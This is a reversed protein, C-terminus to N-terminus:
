KQIGKIEKHYADAYTFALNHFIKRQELLRTDTRMPHVRNSLLCVAADREPDIWISTGTFGTHGYSRPASVHGLPTDGRVGLLFGIGRGVPAFPTFDTSFEGISDPSLFQGRDGNGGHLLMRLFRHIDGATSFVGANGAVGGLFRANEDHVTGCIITGTDSNRETSAIPRVAFRVSDLPNYTTDSMGLPGFVLEQAAKDLPAGFVIELIKGLVIFGFCSYTYSTGPSAIPPLSLIFRIADDPDSINDWLRLEPIFGGSHTLLQLLTVDRYNGSFTLFHGITHKYDLARMDVLRAAVMTTSVVKSVSALDFLTDETMPLPQPLLARSGTTHSFIPGNSDCIFAVCGPCVRKSVMANLFHKLDEDISGAMQRM